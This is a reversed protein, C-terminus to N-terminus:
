SVSVPMWIPRIAGGSPQICVTMYFIIGPLYSDMFCTERFLYYPLQRVLTASLFPSTGNLCM